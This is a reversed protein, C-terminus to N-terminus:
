PKQIFKMQSFHRDFTFAERVGLQEMVVKSTCDTFSWSKDKNFREFTQWAESEIEPTIHIVLVVHNHILVDLKNKFAITKHYGLDFLMLTFTEDLIFNTTLLRIKTNMLEQRFLLAASLNIDKRDELAVWASTDVFIM